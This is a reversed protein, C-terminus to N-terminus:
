LKKEPSINYKKRINLNTKEISNFSVCSPIVVTSPFDISEQVAKEVVHSICIMKNILKRSFKVPTTIKKKIPFLVRRHLVIKIEKLSLLKAIVAITQAKSEHCHVIVPKKFRLYVIYLPAIFFSSLPSFAVYAYGHERFYYHLASNKRCILKQCIGLKKLEHFLLVVQREGGRWTKSFNIHITLFQM